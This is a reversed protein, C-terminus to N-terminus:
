PPARVRSTSHVSNGGHRGPEHRERWVGWCPRGHHARGPAPCQRTQPAPGVTSAPTTSAVTNASDGDHPPGEGAPRDAPVGSYRERGQVAPSQPWPERDPRPFPPVVFPKGGSRRLLISCSLRGIPDSPRRSSTSRERRCRRAHLGCGRPRGDPVPPVWDRAPVPRAACGRRVPVRGLDPVFQRHGPRQRLQARKQELHIGPVDLLGATHPGM